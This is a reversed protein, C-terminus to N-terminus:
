YTALAKTDNLEKLVKKLGNMNLQLGAEADPAFNENIIGIPGKYSSKWIINMMRTEINGDGVPVVTAPYGGKLGTLNIALLHPLIKPFFEPFRQIQEESHSFNYVIGINPRKLYQIIALQNEPESSWGGHNYLGLTCGIENLRDAIYAVAEATKQVKQEQSLTDFGPGPVFMSWLQTKVKNRKLVDLIIQLNKDQEPSPGSAYWFSQLVIHHKNLQKIEEDFFPIHKERWDYALKTIGLKNLMEAREEANREKSDFPVICWAVLNQKSFVDQTKQAEATIYMCAVFICAICKRVDGSAIVFLYSAIVGRIAVVIKTHLHM